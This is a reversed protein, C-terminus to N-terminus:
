GPKNSKLVVRLYGHKNEIDSIEATGRVRSTVLDGGTVPDM